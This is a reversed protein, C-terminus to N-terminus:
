QYQNTDKLISTKILQSHISLIHHYSYLQYEYDDEELVISISSFCTSTFILISPLCPHIYEYIHGTAGEWELIFCCYELWVRKWLTTKFPIFFLPLNSYCWIILLPCPLVMDLLDVFFSHCVSILISFYRNHNFISHISLLLLSFVSKVRKHHYHLVYWFFVRKKFFVFISIIIEISLVTSLVWVMEQSPITYSVLEENPNLFLSLPITMPSLIFKISFFM